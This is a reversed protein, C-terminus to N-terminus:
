YKIIFADKFSRKVEALEKQAASQSSFRGICYKYKYKGTGTLMWTRSRYTKFESSSSKLIKNSSLIQITYGSKLNASENSKATPKAEPKPAPTAEHAVSGSKTKAVMTNYDRIGGFIARAIEDQGKASTMYAFEQPNTMFGIETLACPMDSGYLVMIPQRRLARVKRNQAAYNKQILRAFAESYQGYTFQLNQIYARVIAATKENSMDLLEERNAAYIAAENRQQELSSEGMILTEAGAASASQAANAHISIFLDAQAENAIRTRAGLDKSLTPALHIDKTRTYVVKVHPLEREIIAGLKLAVKLTLEKEKVGHYTAGPFMGGHGPDIVVVKIGQTNAYAVLPTTCIGILFLLLTTFFLKTKM